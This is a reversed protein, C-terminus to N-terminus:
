KYFSILNFSKLFTFVCDFFALIINLIIGFIFVSVVTSAPFTGDFIKVEGVINKFTLLPFVIIGAILLLISDEKVERMSDLLLAIANEKRRTEADIRKIESIAKPIMTFNFIMIAIVIGGFIALITILMGADFIWSEPNLGFLLYIPIAAALVAIMKIANKIAQGM